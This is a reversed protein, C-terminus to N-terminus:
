DKRINGRKRRRKYYKNKSLRRPYSLLLNAGDLQVLSYGWEGAAKKPLLSKTEGVNYKKLANYYDTETAKVSMLTSTAEVDFQFDKDEALGPTNWVSTNQVLENDLSIGSEEIMDAAMKKLRVIDASGIKNDKNYDYSSQAFQGNKVIKANAHFADWLDLGSLTYSGMPMSQFDEITQLYGGVSKNNELASIFAEKGKGFSCARLCSM